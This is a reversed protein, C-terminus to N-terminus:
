QNGQEDKQGAKMQAEAVLDKQLNTTTAKANTEIVQRTMTTSSASSADVWAECAAYIAASLTACITGFIVIKDDKIQYGAISTAVSGLFAAVTIWFKRSKLKDM